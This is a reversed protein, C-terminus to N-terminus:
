KMQKTAPESFAERGRFDEACPDGNSGYNDIGFAFDYNRNLDVGVDEHSGPCQKQADMKFNKRVMELSKHQKWYDSIEHYGDVNVIPIVYISSEKLLQHM